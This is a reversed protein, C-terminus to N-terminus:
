ASNRCEISHSILNKIYEPLLTNVINFFYDRDIPKKHNNSFPLHMMVNEDDSLDELIDRVNLEPFKPVKIMKVSNMLLLKKKDTLVDRIFEKNISRLPPLYYGVASLLFLLSVSIECTPIYIARLAFDTLFSM